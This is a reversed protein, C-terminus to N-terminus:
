SSMYDELRFLGTAAGIYGVAIFFYPFFAFVALILVVMAALTFGASKAVRRM